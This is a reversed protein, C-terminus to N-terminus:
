TSRGLYTERIVKTNESRKEKKKRAKGSLCAKKYDHNSKKETGETRKPASKQTRRGNPSKIEFSRKDTRRLFKMTWVKLFYILM